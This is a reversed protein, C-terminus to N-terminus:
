PYRARYYRQPEPPNNPDTFEFLGNTGAILNTFGLEWPGALNTGRDITYQLGAVGQFAATFSGDPLLGQNVPRAAVLESAIVSVDITGNTSAGRSDILTYACQDLGVFGQTPSFWILSNTLWVSGGNASAPNVSPISLADGDPDSAVALLAAVPISVPVQQGTIAAYSGPVPRQNVALVAYVSSTAGAPNTVVVSYTGANSVGVGNLVLTANTAAGIPTNTNFYWQYGLPASGSAIVSLAAAGGVLVTQNTPQTTVVPPILVSLTAVSSTVSGLGDSVVVSYSGVNTPQANTVTFTANTAKSISNTLNFRWQYRIPGNGAAAVSFTANSGSVISLSAPPNTIAPAHSRSISYFAVRAGEGNTGANDQCYSGAKYYLTNTAWDPDTQFVNLSQTTGNVTVSVLGNLVKIQYNINTNPGVNGFTYKKDTLDNNANTKILVEVNGNNYQLKVLPLAAGTYGHIQGIIVKGSSPIQTVRCQADLTHTGFAFWNSSNSPPAVQERLESRPYSSGSTTAGQVFAWFTMAGDPGTYFYLANSYGTVLQAAPISASTGNTGGSSDVPLGLYFNTLNFNGGPPKNPDLGQASATQLAALLGCFFLLAASKKTM